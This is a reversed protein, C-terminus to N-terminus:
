APTRSKTPAKTIKKIEKELEYMDSDSWGLHRMNLIQYFLTQAEADLRCTIASLSFKFLVDIRYTSLFAAALFEGSYGGQKVRKILADANISAIEDRDNIDMIYGQTLFHEVPIPSDPRM